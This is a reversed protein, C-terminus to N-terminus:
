KRLSIRLFIFDLLWMAFSCDVHGQLMLLQGGYIWQRLLAVGAEESEVFKKQSVRASASPECGQRSVGSNIGLGCM